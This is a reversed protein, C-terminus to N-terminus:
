PRHPTFLPYRLTGFGYIPRLPLDGRPAAGLDVVVVSVNHFGRSVARSRRKWPSRSPKCRSSARASGQGQQQDGCMGCAAPHASAQAGIRDYVVRHWMSASSTSIPIALVVPPRLGDLDSVEIQQSREGRHGDRFRGTTRAVPAVTTSDYQTSLQRSLDLECSYVRENMRRAEARM